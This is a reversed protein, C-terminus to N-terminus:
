LFGFRSRTKTKALTERNSYLVWFIFGPVGLGYVVLAPLGVGLMM